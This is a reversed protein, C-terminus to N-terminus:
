CTHTLTPTPSHPLTTVQEIVARVVIEGVEVEEVVVGEVMVVVGGDKAEVVLGPVVGVEVEVGMHGIAVGVVM